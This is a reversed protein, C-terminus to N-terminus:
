PEKAHIISYIRSTLDGIAQEEIAEHSNGTISVCYWAPKGKIRLLASNQAIGWGRATFLSYDSWRERGEEETVERFRNFLLREEELGHLASCIEATSAFWGVKDTLDYREPPYEIFQNQNFLDALRKPSRIIKAADKEAFLQAYERNTLFPALRSGGKEIEKKGVAQILMDAASLDREVFMMNKLTDITIATGAAWFHLFGASGSKVKDDLRVVTEASLEKRAAKEKLARLIFVSHNTGINLPAPNHELIKKGDKSVFLSAKGLTREAFGKIKEFSDNPLEPRGFYFNRNKGKEFQGRLPLVADRYEIRLEGGKKTIGKCPGYYDTQQAFIAAFDELSADHYIQPAFISEAEKAKFPCFSKKLSSLSPTDAHAPLTALLLLAPLLKM